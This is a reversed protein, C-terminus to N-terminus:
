PVPYANFEALQERDTLRVLVDAEANSFVARVKHWQMGGREGSALPELRQLEGASRLGAVADEVRERTLYRDLDLTIKERAVSGHSFRDIWDGITTFTQASITVPPQKPPAAGTLMAEFLRSAILGTQVHDGNSLVVVSTRRDLSVITQSAFGALGGSHQVVAYEGRKESFWGLAPASPGPDALVVPQTMLAVEAQTLVSGSMLVTHWHALDRATSAIGGSAYMWGAREGESQRTPGLAFRTFGRVHKSTVTPPENFFSDHMGAPVLVNETLFRGFPTGSAREVILGALHYGTNSYSWATGPEFQLPLATYRRVIEYPPVASFKEADAYGLPYYDRYGSTHSLLNKVTVDAARQLDPFFRGVTDELRLVGARVLLLVSAATFQKTVSAINYISDQAADGFTKVHRVTGGSTAAVSVSPAAANRVASAVIEDFESENM